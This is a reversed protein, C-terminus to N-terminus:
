EFILYLRNNKEVIRNKIWKDECIWTNEKDGIKLGIDFWKQTSKASYM